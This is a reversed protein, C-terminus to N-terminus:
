AGLVQRLAAEIRKAARAAAAAGRLYPDPIADSSLPPAPNASLVSVLDTGDASTGGAYTGGGSSRGSESAGPNATALRAAQGLLLTRRVLDSWEDLIFIRHEPAMVLLLDAEHAIASTLRRARFGESSGGRSELQAAMRADMPWGALGHIGASAFQWGSAASQQPLPGVMQRALLEAFPSRCINGTCVFLVRVSVRYAYKRRTPPRCAPTLM